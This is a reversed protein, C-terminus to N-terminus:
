MMSRMQVAHSRRLFRSAYVHNEVAAYSYHVFCIPTETMQIECLRSAWKTM